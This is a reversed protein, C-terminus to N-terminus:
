RFLTFGQEEFHADFALVADAGVTRIAEFSVCDVLSLGRRSATLVASVGANHVAQEVFEIDVLPM